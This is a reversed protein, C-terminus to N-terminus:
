SGSQKRLKLIRYGSRGQKLDEYIESGPGAVFNNLLEAEDNAVEFAAFRRRAAEDCSLLVNTTVDRDSETVFGKARLFILHEEILGVRLNDAYLFYGQHRLVRWAEEYFGHIDMYNHSSEINMVVDFSQDPFPLREADGQLFFTNVADCKARSFSVASASLDLGIIRGARFYQNITQATGGRGSGVDLIELATLDCDGIVELTLKISNKNLCYEPLEIRSCQANQDPLYGYNLFQAHEGFISSNLRESISDYYHRILNKSERNARGKSDPSQAFSVEDQDLAKEQSVGTDIENGTPPRDKRSPSTAPPTHLGQELLMMQLLTRKRASLGAMREWLDSM